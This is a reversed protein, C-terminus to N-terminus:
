RDGCLEQWAAILREAHLDRLTETEL